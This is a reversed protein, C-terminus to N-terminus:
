LLMPTSHVGFLLWYVLNVRSFFFEGATTRVLCLYLVGVGSVRAGTCAHVSGNRSKGWVTRKRPLTWGTKNNYRTDKVDDSANARSFQGAHVETTSTRFTPTTTFYKVVSASCINLNTNKSFQTSISIDTKFTQLLYSCLTLHKKKLKWFNQRGLKQGKPEKLKM